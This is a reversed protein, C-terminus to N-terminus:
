MSGLTTKVLLGVGAPLEEEKSVVKLVGLNVCYHSSAIATM